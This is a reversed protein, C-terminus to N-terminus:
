DLGVIGPACQVTVDSILVLGRCMEKAAFVAVLYLSYLDNLLSSTREGVRGTKRDICNLPLFSHKETRADLMTGRRTASGWNVIYAAASAM